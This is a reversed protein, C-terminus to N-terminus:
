KQSGRMRDMDDTFAQILEDWTVREHSSLLKYIALDMTPVDGSSLDESKSVRTLSPHLSGKVLTSVERSTKGALQEAIQERAVTDKIRLFLRAQTFPIKRQRLKEQINAPLKLLALRQFVYGESKHVLKAIEEVSSGQRLRRQFEAGLELPNLSNRSMNESLQVDRVEAEALDRIECRITTWGLKRVARYRREGHNIRFKGNGLRRVSIINLLGHLRIDEALSEIDFFTKRPQGEDVEVLDLPLDEIKFETLNLGRSFDDISTRHTEPWNRGCRMEYLIQLTPTCIARSM